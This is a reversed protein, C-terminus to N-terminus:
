RANCSIRRLITPSVMTVVFIDDRRVGSARVGDGVDRENGYMQATDIHRYGLRIAQEVLRACDRGRLEWTGLGVLPIRANGSLIANDFQAM